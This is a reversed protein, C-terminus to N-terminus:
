QSCRFMGCWRGSLNRWAIACPRHPLFCHQRWYAQPPMLWRHAPYPTPSGARCCACPTSSAVPIPRSERKAAGHPETSGGTVTRHAAYWRNTASFAYGRGDVAVVAAHLLLADYAPMRGCIARYLLASEAEADSMRRDCEARYGCIDEGSVRVRFAAAGGDTGIYNRCLSEVYGYRNDIEINLGCLRVTFM